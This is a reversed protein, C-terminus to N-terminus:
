VQPVLTLQSAHLARFEGSLDLEPPKIVMSGQDKSIHWEM